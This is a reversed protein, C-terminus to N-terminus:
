WAAINGMGYERMSQLMRGLHAAPVMFPAMEPPFPPFQHLTWLPRHMDSVLEFSGRTSHSKKGKSRRHIYEMPVLAFFDPEQPAAIIIAQCAAYQSSSFGIMYQINEKQDFAHGITKIDLPFILKSNPCSQRLHFLIDTKSGHLSGDGIFFGCDVAGEEFGRLFNPDDVHDFVRCESLFAWQLTVSHLFSQYLSVHREEATETTMM